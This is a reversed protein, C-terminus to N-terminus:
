RSRVVTGASVGASREPCIRLVSRCGAQERPPSEEQGYCTSGVGLRKLKTLKEKPVEFLGAATNVTTDLHQVSQVPDWVRKSPHFSM